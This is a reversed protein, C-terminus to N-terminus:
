TVVASGVFYPASEGGESNAATIFYYYTDPPLSSGDTHNYSSSAVVNIRAVEAASAFADVTARYIVAETVDGDAPTSFSLLASGVGDSVTAAPIADPPDATVAATKTIILTFNSGVDYLSRGQVQVDVSDGVEYGVISASAAGASVTFSTWAGGGSLRHNIVYVAVEVPSGAGPALLVDLGTATPDVSLFVPVAPATTDDATPGGVRGNWPPPVEADTLTDIEPAAALMQLVVSNGDGAEVAKVRVDTSESGALGFHVIAGRAPPDGDGRVVIATTEGPDTVVGRLVSTSVANGNVESLLLYRCAYVEGEDMVVPGDLEILNDRVAIVRRASQTSKLVDHSLKLLDGRTVARAAGNQTATFKTPRHELEYQRRRVERWIEDPNTKGVLPMEEVVEIDGTQGPWPVIRERSAFNATEDLFPVIVADPPKFYTRAWGFDRSNRPSVHDIVLEQPRDIVIGWALGDHRPSARGASAIDALVGYQSGTFDHLRNYTLGKEDCFEHWDALEVLNIEADPVPFACANQLVWRFLAAPNRTARTIWTQTGSDWDPCIREVVCNFTDITGNLQHTAKIRLAVLALPQDFAIPNEPRFSQLGVWVIRDAQQNSTSEDTLRTMEIEWQGRSPLTWRFFRFFPEKRKAQYTIEEVDQWDGGTAPRQRIRIDVAQTLADGAANFSILGTPFGVIVGAETADLASFRAIPEINSPGAIIDGASDRPLDRRMEVGLNEEIIQQPYLTLSEDSSYGNRSEITVEDFSSLPTEGLKLDSIEVPGYGLNFLARVYQDDGSIETYTHAAFPPAFRHKGLIAPIAGGPNLSNQWGSISYTPKEATASRAIAANSAGSRVPVLANILLTGILTAGAVILSGAVATSVGLTLALAPAFIAGLAIAAITVVATLIPKLADGAPVVRIVVLTGAHPRVNHWIQQPILASEGSPGILTIRVRNWVHDGLGPLTEHAITLLNTGPDFQREVRGAGPDLLPMAVAPVTPPRILNDQSFQINM